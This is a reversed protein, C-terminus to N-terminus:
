TLAPLATAEDILALIGADDLTDALRVTEGTSAYFFAAGVADLPLDHLRAWALRYVALQVAAARRREGTPPTGTKWDVVDFGGEDRPFVADIRGRLVIGGVPTEVDVEVAVPARNAWESALFVEKLRPLEADDAAGEDQAGPLDEVDVLADARFRQELWAHFATGRRTAPHPPTPMPRRIQEALGGPDSALQVARSASLHVPLVVDREPRSALERETLLREVERDWEGAQDADAARAAAGDHEGGRPLVPVESSQQREVEALVAGAAAEVAPRRTGLPDYPWAARRPEALRPNEDQEPGQEIVEPELGQVVVRPDGAFAEAVELLFRSPRRPRKGDQWWSGSLLLDRRARTAAVYALRREEAVDHAGCARKLDKVATDLDKLHTASRWGWVPLSDVDGRLDYPLVGLGSLWGPATDEGERSSTSPFSGEVLGPVAVVDWELGKSAHVTLLQIATRSPEATEPPHGAAGEDAEEAQNLGREREAAARLWSLFGGLTPRDASDAFSAAVDTFADLQARATAPAVGPVAALEVDLRLTREVDTVLEPLPASARRRLRALEGSLRTLREYGARTLGRGHPGVWGPAPLDDLADVLSREDVADPDVLVEEDVPQADRGPSPAPRHRAHLARAWEGLTELDQPGIRWRPGTLLRVLADGRTPDHLVQLTAVVDVVEPRELLGGLGIVEVPLGRERLAQEVGVFQSRKRCLVAMTARPSGQAVAEDQAHWARELDDALAANEEEVTACWRAVVRGPGAGPRASLERVEVRSSATLPAALTNSVDLVAHDNRWSTSLWAVPAPTGDPRPFDSGFRELNGASAGRWGYISQHPDGVATVPHGGGYLSRLLMLQATSTDQYEDLLVVDFRGREGAGVEPVERALRAALAVQDGFDLAELERKRRQYAELLPVLRRRAALAALAKACEWSRPPVAPAGGADDKPLAGLRELLEDLHDGLDAPEVLHEACEASLAVLGEVVTSPARDVAALDEAWGEVVEQALQWSAAEGLLRSRPEVGLRLGHDAVVSAAYSHYTAITPDALEVGDPVALGGAARLQRLRLRVRDALEGAAKRTFTLGLVRDPAVLGAAVLWVVRAAMTETKGSGAGAVVLMPGLDAEVVRAQEDTPRHQGLREAVQAATPRQRAPAM